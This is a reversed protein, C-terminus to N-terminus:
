LILRSNRDAEASRRGLRMAKIQERFVMEIRGLMNTPTEDTFGEFDHVMHMQDYYGCEHAVDTWSKTSSRAKRDLAAEFRAIRAYLKPRIGVQQIFSREFQRMSLGAHNALAVMRVDGGGLLIQSAAASIGDCGRVELCRRLLLQNALRIREGFSRCEGLRQGLQSVFAGLVSDAEYDRDALEHMPISFLRHLGTPQFLIVFSEITGQLRLRVRCHTQLGVVVARPSTQVLSQTRYSVEFRDGFVFELL